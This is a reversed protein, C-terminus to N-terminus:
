HPGRERVGLELRDVREGVAVSAGPPRQQLVHAQALPEAAAGRQRDAGRQHECAAVVEVREIGGPHDAAGVVRRPRPRHLRPDAQQCLGGVLCAAQVFPEALVQLCQLLPPDSVALACRM